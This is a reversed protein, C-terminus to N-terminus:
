QIPPFSECAATFTKLADNLAGALDGGCISSFIGNAGTLTVFEKLRSAEDASGFSSMCAGPGPGAIAATAWRGREKKVGDLVTLYAPVTTLDAKDCVGGDVMFNDDSRSCDEEDTLYVVALLADDRMFGANSGDKVRDTVALKMAELPMEMSSGMTGLEAVCGFQKAVDTNDFREIWPRTMGCESKNYFKGNEGMESMPFDFGPGLSITYNVDRGTSTVAARWDLDGNGGTKFANLVEIFKPFNATLNTQEEAMSGSNDVVFLIDMKQCTANGNPDIPGGGGGGGGGTGGGGPGMTRSTPGSCATFLLLTAFFRKM